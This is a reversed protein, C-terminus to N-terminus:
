SYKQDLFGFESGYSNTGVLSGSGRTLVQLYGCTKCTSAPHLDKYANATKSTFIM